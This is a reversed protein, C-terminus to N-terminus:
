RFKVKQAAKEAKEKEMKKIYINEAAKEEESLVKGTSSSLCRRQLPVAKDMVTRSLRRLPSLASM